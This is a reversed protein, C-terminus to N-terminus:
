RISVASQLYFVNYLNRRRIVAFTFIHSVQGDDAVARVYRVDEPNSTEVGDLNLLKVETVNLGVGSLQNRVCEGIAEFTLGECSGGMFAEMVKGHIRQVRKRLEEDIDTGM